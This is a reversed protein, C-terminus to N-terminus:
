HSNATHTSSPAVPASSIRHTAAFANGRAVIERAVDPTDVRVAVLFGDRASQADIDVVNGPLWFPDNPVSSMPVRGLVRRASHCELARDLWEATVGPLAELRITVGRLESDSGNKASEVSAYLPEVDQVLKGDLIPGLAKEDLDPGCRTREMDAAHDMATKAPASPECAIASLFVMSALTIARSRTASDFRVASGNDIRV